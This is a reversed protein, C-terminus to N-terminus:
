INGGKELRKLVMDVKKSYDKKSLAGAKYAETLDSVLGRIEKVRASDDDPAPKAPEPKRPSPQQPQEGVELPKAKPDDPNFGYNTQDGNENVCIITSTWVKNILVPETCMVQWETVYRSENPDTQQKLSNCFSIFDGFYLNVDLTEGGQILPLDSPSLTSEFFVNNPSRKVWVDYDLLEFYPRQQLLFEPLIPRPNKEPKRSRSYKWINKVSVKEGNANIKEYIDRASPLAQVRNGYKHKQYKSLTKAIYRVGKTRAKYRPKSKGKSRRM